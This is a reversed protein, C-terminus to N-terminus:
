RRSEPATGSLWTMIAKPGLWDWVGSSVRVNGKDSIRLPADAGLSCHERCSMEGTMM